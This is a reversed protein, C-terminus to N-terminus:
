FFFSGEEGVTTLHNKDIGKMFDSMDVVWSTVEKPCGAKDQGFPCRPLPTTQKSLPQFYVTLSRFADTSSSFFFVWFRM